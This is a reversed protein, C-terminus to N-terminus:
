YIHGSPKHMVEFAGEDARFPVKERLSFSFSMGEGEPLLHGFAPHPSIDV